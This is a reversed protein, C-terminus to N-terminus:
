SLELDICLGKRCREQMVRYFICFYIVLHEFFYETRSDCKKDVTNCLKILDCIYCSFLDLSSVNTLHENGHCLVYSDDKYLEGVAKM